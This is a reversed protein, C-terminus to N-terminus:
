QLRIEITYGIYNAVWEFWRPMPAADRVYIAPKSIILLVLRLYIHMVYVLVIFPVFLITTIVLMIYYLAKKM